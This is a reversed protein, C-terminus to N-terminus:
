MQIISINHASSRDLIASKHNWLQQHLNAAPLHIALPSTYM